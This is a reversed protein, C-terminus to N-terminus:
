KDYLLKKAEQITTGNELAQMIELSVDLEMGLYLDMRRNLVCHEWELYREPFILEQGRVIWDSIKESAIEM